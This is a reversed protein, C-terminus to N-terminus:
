RHSAARRTVERVAGVRQRDVLDIGVVRRARGGADSLEVPDEAAADYRAARHEDAALRADAFGGQQKLNGAREGRAGADALRQEAFAVALEDAGAHTLRGRM